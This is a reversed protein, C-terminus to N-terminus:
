STPYVVVDHYKYKWPIIFIHPFLYWILIYVIICVSSHTYLDFWPRMEKLHIQFMIKFWMITENSKEDLVSVPKRFIRFMPSGHKLDFCSGSGTRFNTQKQYFNRNETGSLSFTCRVNTYSTCTCTLLYICTFLTHIQHHWNVLCHIM